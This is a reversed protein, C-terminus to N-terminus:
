KDNIFAKNNELTWLCSFWFPHKNKKIIQAVKRCFCVFISIIKMELYFLIESYLLDVKANENKM